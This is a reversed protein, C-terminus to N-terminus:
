TQLQVKRDLAATGDDFERSHTYGHERDYLDFVKCV